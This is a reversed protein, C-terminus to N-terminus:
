VIGASKLLAKLQLGGKMKKIETERALAKEKSDFQEFYLMKWPGRGRTSKTLGENHQDLRNEIQSTYGIYRRGSTQSRIIYVYHTM